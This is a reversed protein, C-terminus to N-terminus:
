EYQNHLTISNLLTRVYGVATFLVLATYGIIVSWIHYVFHLTQNPILQVAIACMAYCMVAFFVRKKAEEFFVTPLSRNPYSGLHM